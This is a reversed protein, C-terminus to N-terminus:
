HFKKDNKHINMKHTFSSYLGITAIITVNFIISGATDTKHFFHYITNHSM